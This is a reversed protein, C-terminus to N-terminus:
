FKKQIEITFFMGIWPNLPSLLFEIGKVINYSISPLLPRMSVGGSILYRLPMQYRMQNIQLSPFQQEFQERDRCFIIWPLAGNASSLPGTGAVRWGASPDFVEHHFHQWIFRGWLTNAPEIMVIKGGPCLCRNLEKLIHGPDKIHHFVNFMFFADVSDDKFPMNQASFCLDINSLFLIDSTIVSPIIDKVFGGGSGLEVYKGDPFLAVADQYQRYCDVYLKRLFKKQKIIQAHRQTTRPDDLDEIDKLEPLRLWRLIGKIM